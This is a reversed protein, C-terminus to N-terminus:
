KYRFDEVYDDAFVKQPAFFLIVLIIYISIKQRINM